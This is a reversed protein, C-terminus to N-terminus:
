LKCDFIIEVVWSTVSLKFSIFFWLLKDSTEVIFFTFLYLPEWVIYYLDSLLSFFFVKMSWVCVTHKSTEIICRIIVCGSLTKHHEITM